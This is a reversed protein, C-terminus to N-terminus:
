STDCRINWEGNNQKELSEACWHKTTTPGLLQVSAAGLFWIHLALEDCCNLEACVSHAGARAASVTYQEAAPAELPKAPAAVALAAAAAEAAAPAAAAKAPAAGDAAPAAGAGKEEEQFDTVQERAALELPARTRGLHRGRLWWSM